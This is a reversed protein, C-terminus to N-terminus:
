NTLDFSILRNYNLWKLIVLTLDYMHGNFWIKQWNRFSGIPGDVIANETEFSIQCM